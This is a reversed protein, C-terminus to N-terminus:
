YSVPSPKKFRRHTWGYWYEPHARIILELCTHYRQMLKAKSVPSNACLQIIRIESNPLLIAFYVPKLTKKSLYWPLSSQYVRQSFFSAPNSRSPHFQDLLVGFVGKNQIWQHAFLPTGTSITKLNIKARLYNLVSNARKNKLPRSYGVIPLGAKVLWSGMLEWNCFHACVLVGGTQKLSALNKQNQTALKLFCFHRQHLFALLDKSLNGYFKLFSFKRIGCLALNNQLTTKKWGILILFLALCSSLSGLYLSYLQIKFFNIL